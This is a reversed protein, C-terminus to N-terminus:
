LQKIIMEKFEDGIVQVGHWLIRVIGLAAVISSTLSSRRIAKDHFELQGVVHVSVFDEELPLSERLNTFFDSTQM